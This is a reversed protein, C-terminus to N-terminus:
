LTGGVASLLATERVQVPKVYLTDGRDYVVAVSTSENDTFRVYPGTSSFHVYERGISYVDGNTSALELTGALVEGSRYSDGGVVLFVELAGNQLVPAFRDVYGITAGDITFPQGKAVYSAFEAPVTVAVEYVGTGRLELLPTGPTVYEGDEVYVKSVVGAFPAQTYALSLQARLVESNSRAVSQAQEDISAQLEAASRALAASADTVKTNTVQVVSDQQAADQAAQLALKYSSLNTKANVIASRMAMYSEYVDGGVQTEREDLADEEGTMLANHIRNLVVNTDTALLLVAAVDAEDNGQLTHLRELLESDDGTSASLMGSRLFNPNSGYLAEVALKYEDMGDSTFLRRNTDIYDLARVSTLLSQEIGALLQTRTIRVQSENGVSRLTAISTASEYASDQAIRQMNATELALQQQSSTLASQANSLSLQAQTVPADLQAILTGVGVTDGERAIHNVNGSTEAYVVMTDAATLVGSVRVPITDAKELYVEDQVKTVRVEEDKNGIFVYLISFLALTVAGAGLVRAQKNSIKM